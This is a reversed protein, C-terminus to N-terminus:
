GGRDRRPVEAQLASAGGVRPGLCDREFIGLAHEDLLHQGAVAAVDPQRGQLEPHAAAREVSPELVIADALLWAGPLACPEPLVTRCRRRYRLRSCATNRSTISAPSGAAM